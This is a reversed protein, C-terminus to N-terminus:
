ESKRNRHLSRNTILNKGEILQDKKSKKIFKNFQVPSTTDVRSRANTIKDQHIINLRKNWRKQFLDKLKTQDYYM